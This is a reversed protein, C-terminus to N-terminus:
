NDSGRSLIMQPNLSGTEVDCHKRNVGFKGLSKGLDLYAM